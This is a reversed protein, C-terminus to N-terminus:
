KAVTSVSVSGEVGSVTVTGPDGGANRKSYTWVGSKRSFSMPGYGVLQLNANKGLDSSATVSLTDRKVSYSAKTVVITLDYGNCDQDIGDGVIETAGPHISSDGDNCDTTVPYGDGDADVPGTGLVLRAASVDLLGHGYDNDDGAPGLDTASQILASELANASATSYESKLLAIAGTVHAVSFSTGSVTAYSNPIAGNFTLDSTRVSIGPAVLQPYISGDCASPGRSSSLAVVLAQDVAGVSLAGSNNAPSVSTDPYPGSNGAAFTVAIDSNRLIQIDQQFESDCVNVSTLLNWSNNVVDPADNTSPNSDPDLVWQYSQHIGSVTASGSDNFIKASIWQAGPAMGISTGGANGGVILGMSQTGHGSADYPTAHESNPDYWSNSGGRWRSSLDQHSADVGTDLTAVVVGQGDFGAAWSVPAHVADLNWEPTTPEGTSTVAATIVRDLSVEDVDSRAAISPISSAPVTVAIANIMWLHKWGAVDQGAQLWQILPRQSNNANNQLAEIIKQRRKAINNEQIATVDAHAKLKVIISIKDTAKASQMVSAIEPTVSGAQVTAVCFLPLLVILKKYKNV